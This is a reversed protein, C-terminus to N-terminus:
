CTLSFRHDPWFPQQRPPQWVVQGSVKNRRDVFAKGPRSWFVPWELVLGDSLTEERRRPRCTLGWTNLTAVAALTIPSEPLGLEEILIARLRSVAWNTNQAHSDSARFGM